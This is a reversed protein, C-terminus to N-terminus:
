SGTPSSSNASVSFIRSAASRSIGAEDAGAPFGCAPFSAFGAAGDCIIKPLGNWPFTVGMRSSDCSLSTPRTM